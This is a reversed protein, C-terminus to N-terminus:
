KQDPNDNITLEIGNKSCWTALAKLQAAAEFDYWAQLIGRHELYNKFRRYAGPRKFIDRIDEYDDPIKQSAFEFVLNNGLDLQYKDPMDVYRDINDIDEPIPDFEADDSFYLFRDDVRDYVVRADFLGSASAFIYADEIESYTPM